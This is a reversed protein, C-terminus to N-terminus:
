RDMPEHCLLGASLRRRFDRRLPYLWVDKPPLGGRHFRDRKGRGTTQGVYLWNAAQYCTGRFRDRQVFTELLVPEYGYLTAFDGALRRACLSLIKSALNRCKVWPLILFRCNNVILHLRRQQQALNQWGLFTDRVGVKLAAPGFGIVGLIRQQELGFFYRVLHPGGTHRGGLYHHRELLAYYLASQYRAEVRWLCLEELRDVPTELAEAKPLELSQRAGNRARLSKNGNTGSPAPLKILGRRDLGLLAVRASLLRPKGLACVWGLESCVKRAIQARNAGEATAILRRVRDLGAEGFAMGLLQQPISPISAKAM